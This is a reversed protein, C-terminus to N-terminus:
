MIIDLRYANFLDLFGRGLEDSVLLLEKLVLSGLSLVEFVLQPPRTVV